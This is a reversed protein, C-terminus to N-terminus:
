RKAEKVLKNAFDRAQKDAAILDNIDSAKKYPVKKVSEFVITEIDLFSIEDNLFAHVAVENAGNIIAGLNGKRDIVESALKVLPYREEDFDKFHLNELCSFDDFTQTEFPINGEFIAFKIPNKMDPPNIEGRYLGDKYLVASHLMSEQHLKVMIQNSNYGFLYNAEIVEFCKNMMSACDITIKDGMKWTPHRLADDKTVSKLEERSFDRFAGGSATIILKDVNQEDVKLCKWIASHESDIPYLKGKKELIRNIIEGGVILSEKNALALVRDEELARISPLLGSFGVLANVVMYPNSLSIINELDHTGTLFTIEPYKEKLFDVIDNEILYVYKVQKHKSLIPEIVKHNHGVSFSILTFESPNKEIVELTQMGISGSAGLLCITKM